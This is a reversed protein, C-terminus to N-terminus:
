ARLDSRSDTSDGTRIGLLEGGVAEPPLPRAWLFGQGWTCGMEELLASAEATEVGEAVVGRFRLARAMEIITGTVARSRPDSLMRRVFSRDIKVIGVPLRNLYSLSSYGTGFDDICLVVGSRTCSTWPGVPRDRLDEMLGSETIELWLAQRPCAPRPWCTASSPSWARRRALQRVSVNVSVHLRRPGTRTPPGPPSSPRVGRALLWAGSEVILGTEEAIPIFEM